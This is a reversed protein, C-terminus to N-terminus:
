LLFKLSLFSYFPGVCNQCECGRWKIVFTNNQQTFENKKIIQCCLSSCSLRPFYSIIQAIEKELLIHKIRMESDLLM